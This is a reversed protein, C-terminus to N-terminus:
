VQSQWKELDGETNIELGKFEVEAVAITCDNQIWRLQELKEIDEEPHRKLSNYRSLMMSKYGYIGLHHDGYGTIGRGFWKAYKGNHIIKVTNPDQRQEPTLSSYVTALDNEELLNSVTLIIEKSIDPMDGQVNIFSKYNLYETALRCRETGNEAEGVLLCNEKGILDVIEQDPTVVYTPLNTELCKQYVMQILPTGNLKALMKNPFRTSALRAPIVIATNM